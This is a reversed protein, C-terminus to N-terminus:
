INKEARARLMKLKIIKEKNSTNELKIYVESIDEDLLNMLRFFGINSSIDYDLIIISETIESATMEQKIVKRTVDKITKPSERDTKVNNLKKVKLNIKPEASKIAIQINSFDFDM